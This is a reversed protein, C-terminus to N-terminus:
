DEYNPVVYNVIAPEVPRPQPAARMQYVDRGSCQAILLDPRGPSPILPLEHKHGRLPCKVTKPKEPQQKKKKVM